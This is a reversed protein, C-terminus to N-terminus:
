SQTQPFYKKEINKVAVTASRDLDDDLNSLDHILDVTRFETFDNKRWFNEEFIWTLKQICWNMIGNTLDNQANLIDLFPCRSSSHVHLLFSWNSAFIEM